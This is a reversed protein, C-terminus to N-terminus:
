FLENLKIATATCILKTTLCNTLMKINGRSAILPNQKHSDLKKM